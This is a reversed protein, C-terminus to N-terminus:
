ESIRSYRRMHAADMSFSNRTFSVQWRHIWQLLYKSEGMAHMHLCVDVDKLVGDALMQIKGAPYQIEGKAILEKRFNWTRTNRQRPLFCASWGAM